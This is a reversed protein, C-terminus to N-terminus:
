HAPRPARPAPRPARPALPSARPALGGSQPPARLSRPVGDSIRRQLQAQRATAAFGRLRTAEAKRRRAFRKPPSATAKASATLRFISVGRLM